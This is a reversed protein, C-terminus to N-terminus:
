KETSILNEGFRTRLLRALPSEEFGKLTQWTVEANKLHFDYSPDPKANSDGLRRILTEQTLFQHGNLCKRKRQKLDGRTELVSTKQGCEPCKM